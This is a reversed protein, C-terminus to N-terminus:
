KKRVKAVFFGETQTKHPWFRRCQGIKENLRKGMFNTLGPDGVTTTIPEIAVKHNDLMWHINLENEEPELSCTSYVLAGGPKLVSLATTILKRQIPVNKLIGQLSRKKFWNQDGAYNGSCPVDLLIKDFKMGLMAAKTADM